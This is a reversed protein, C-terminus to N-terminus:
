GHCAEEIAEDLIPCVVNEQKELCALIADFLAGSEEGETLGVRCIAQMSVITDNVAALAQHTPNREPM